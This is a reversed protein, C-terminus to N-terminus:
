SIERASQCLPVLKELQKLVPSIEYPFLSKQTLKRISLHVKQLVHLISSRDPNIQVPLTSTTTSNKSLYKLLRLFYLLFCTENSLLFDLIVSADCSITQCFLFLINVYFDNAILFIETYM